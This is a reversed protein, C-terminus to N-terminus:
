GGWPTSRGRRGAGCGTCSLSSVDFSDPEPLATATAAPGHTAAIPVPVSPETM